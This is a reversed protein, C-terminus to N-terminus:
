MRCQGTPLDVLNEELLLSQKPIKMKRHLSLGNPAELSGFNTRWMLTVSRSTIFYFINANV